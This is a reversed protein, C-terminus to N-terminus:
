VYPPSLTGCHASPEASETKTPEDIYLTEELELSVDNDTQTKTKKPVQKKRNTAPKPNSPPEEVENTNRNGTLGKLNLEEALVLFADINKRIFM